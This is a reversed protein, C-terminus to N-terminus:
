EEDIGMHYRNEDDYMSASDVIELMGPRGFEDNLTALMLARVIAQRTKNHIRRSRIMLARHAGNTILTRERSHVARSLPLRKGEWRWHDIVQLPEWGGMLYAHIVSRLLASGRLGRFESEEQWKKLIVGPVRIDYQCHASGAVKTGLVPQMGARGQRLRHEVQAEVLVDEQVGLVKAWRALTDGEYRRHVHRTALLKQIMWERFYGDTDEDRM